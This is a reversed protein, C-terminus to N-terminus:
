TKTHKRNRLSKALSAPTWMGCVSDPRSHLRGITLIINTTVTTRIHILETLLIHFRVSEMQLKGSKLQILVLARNKSLLHVKPVGFKIEFGGEEFSQMRPRKRYYEEFIKDLSAHSLKIIQQFDYMETSTATPSGSSFLCFGGDELVQLYEGRMFGILAESSKSDIKDGLYSLSPAFKAEACYM